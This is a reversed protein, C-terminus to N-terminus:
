IRVPNHELQPCVCCTLEVEQKLDPFIASDQDIRLVDLIM